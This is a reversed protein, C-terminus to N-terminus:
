PKYVHSIERRLLEGAADIGNTIDVYILGSIDSPLELPGKHLLIVRGSARGFTALFFGLELIVNQRARRKDENSKNASVPQDDPTLIVFALQSQLAYYEFKELILRGQSPQEHLIIPEQMKLTNQLYNKLELKANEDHGHVIFVRPSSPLAPKGALHEIINGIDTMSHFAKSLFRTTPQESFWCTVKRDQIASLAIIRLDPRKKLLMQAMALGTQHGGHAASEPIDAPRQMMIDLIVVDAELVADIQAIADSACSLRQVDHGRGSLHEALAESAFDDDIIVLKALTDETLDKKSLHALHPWARAEGIYFWRVWIAVLNNSLLVQLYALAIGAKV